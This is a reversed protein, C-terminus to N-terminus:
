MEDRGGHALAPAVAALASWRQSCVKNGHNFSVVAVLKGGRFLSGMGPIKARAVQFGV